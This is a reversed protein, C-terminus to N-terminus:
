REIREADVGHAQEFRELTLRTARVTYEVMWVSHGQESLDCDCEDRRESEETMSSAPDSFGHDCAGDREFAFEILEDYADDFSGALIAVREAFYDQGFYLREPRTTYRVPITM